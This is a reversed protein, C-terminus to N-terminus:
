SDKNVVKIWLKKECSKNLVKNVVKKVFKTWMKQECRNNVDKTSLKYEYSKDYSENMVRTWLEQTWLEQECSKTWLQQESNKDVVKM